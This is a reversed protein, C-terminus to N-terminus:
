ADYGAVQIRYIHLCFVTVFFVPVSREVTLECYLGTRHSHPVAICTSTVSWRTTAVASKYAVRVTDLVRSDLQRALAAITDIADIMM